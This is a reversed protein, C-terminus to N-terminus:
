SLLVWHPVATSPCARGESERRFHRQAGEPHHPPLHRRVGDPVGAQRLPQAPVPPVAPHGGDGGGM